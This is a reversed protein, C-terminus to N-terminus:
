APATGPTCANIQYLVTDLKTATNSTSFLMDSKVPVNLRHVVEAGKGGMDDQCGSPPELEARKNTTTGQYAFFVGNQSASLDIISEPACSAAAETTCTASCGDGSATNADDCEEPAEIKGDSCYGGDPTLLVGGDEGGGGGCNCATAFWLVLVPFLSKASM